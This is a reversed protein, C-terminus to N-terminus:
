WIAARERRTQSADEQDVAGCFCFMIFLGWGRLKFQAFSAHKAIHPSKAAPREVARAAMANSWALELVPVLTVDRVQDCVKPPPASRATMTPIERSSVDAEASAMVLTFNLPTERVGTLPDSELLPEEV